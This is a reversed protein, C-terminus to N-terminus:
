SVKNSRYRSVVAGLLFGAFLTIAIGLVGGSIIVSPWHYPRGSTCALLKFITLPWGCHEIIAVIHDVDVLLSIAVGFVGMFLTFAFREGPGFCRDDYM